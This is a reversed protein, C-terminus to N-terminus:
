FSIEINQSKNSLKNTADYIKKNILKKINYCM